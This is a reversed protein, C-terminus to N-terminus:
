PPIRERPSASLRHALMEMRHAVRPLRLGSHALCRARGRRPVPCGSISSHPGISPTPRLRSEKGASRYEVPAAVVRCRGGLGLVQVCCPCPEGPLRTCPVLQPESLRRLRLPVSRRSPSPWRPAVNCCLISSPRTRSRPPRGVQVGQRLSCWRSSSGEHDDM